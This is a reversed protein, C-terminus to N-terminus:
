QKLKLTILETSLYNIIILIIIIYYTSIKQTLNNPEEAANHM